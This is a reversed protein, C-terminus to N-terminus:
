SASCTINRFLTLAIRVHLLLARVDIVYTLNVPAM